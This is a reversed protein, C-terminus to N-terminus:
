VTVAVDAISSSIFGLQDAVVIATASTLKLGTTGIEGAGIAQIACEVVSVGDTNSKARFLGITQVSSGKAHVPM